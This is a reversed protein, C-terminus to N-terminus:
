KSKTQKLYKRVASIFYLSGTILFVDNENLGRMTTDLAYQWDEYVEKERIRCHAALLQPSVARAFAFSTFIIRDAIEELKEVMEDIKKDGLASFLVTIRKDGYHAQMTQVLSEVGEPNHAGDIIIAPSSSLQEFRGLWFAERLGDRIHQEEILFSQYTKLYYMGMLALAANHVQHTGKMSIFAEELTHFPCGFSLAEGKAGSYLHQISFDRGIQYVKARKEKAVAHIVEAAEQQLVGTVVPVGSKIIGAKEEAIEALTEGLIHMHDHGITTIISLVPYIVNTSDYRGGLGTELLVIDCINQFGFYYFAMVTIIEFETAAGLDTEELKEVVPKVANVLQVLEADAIPEGNISIRENFSEIYPSTFTGVKYAAKQLISRMYTVTSGKGNTGAIHVCKIRRQPHDLQELMWAMRELGPKIGFKLRSHIWDVAEQYTHIM